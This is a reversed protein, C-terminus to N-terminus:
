EAQVGAAPQLCSEQKGTKWRQLSAGGKGAAPIM